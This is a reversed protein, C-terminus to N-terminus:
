RSQVITIQFEDGDRTRALLGKDKTLMGAEEFTMISRIEDQDALLEQLFEEFMRENM